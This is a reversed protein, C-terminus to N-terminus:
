GSCLHDGSNIFCYPDLDEAPDLGMGYVVAQCGGCAPRIACGRCAASGRRYRLAAESDYIEGLDRELINGILSPFKRCAHVEGDPLLTLFNFAAGCGYGACGRLLDRGKQHRIINFLNEKPRITSNTRAAVLYKPLFERFVAPEVSQLAAGEGVMTLRNFTFSDVRGRLKEALPLVQDLNARTLTLMVMSYIECEKLLELFVMTREFHGEGRIYDNHAPLGELSVQYHVPKQIALLRELNEATTPNGLIALSFGRATAARYLEFFHPYLLPNGGSLAISGRVHRSRCFAQLQDLVAEAQALGLFDRSSRDYCHRCHLDCAQTLHWQLAFSKATHFLGRDAGRNGEPFVVRDRQLLSGPARILGRSVARELAREITVAPVNGAAAVEGTALNELVIKLVLLDEEDAVKMTLEGDGPRRWILVLERGPEPR